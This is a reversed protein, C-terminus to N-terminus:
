KVWNSFAESAPFWEKSLTNGAVYVKGDADVYVGLIYWMGSLQDSYLSLSYTQTLTIQDPSLPTISSDRLPSLAAELLDKDTSSKPDAPTQTNPGVMPYLRMENFDVTRWDFPTALTNRFIGLPSMFDYVVLYDAQGAIQYVRQGTTTEGMLIDNGASALGFEEYDSVFVSSAITLTQRSFGEHISPSTEYLYDPLNGAKLLSQRFLIAALGIIFIVGGLAFVVMGVLWKKKTTM